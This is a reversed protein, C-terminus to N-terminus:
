WVCFKIYGDPRMTGPPLVPEPTRAVAPAAPPPAPPPAPNACQGVAPAAGQQTPPLAVMKAYPGPVPPLQM